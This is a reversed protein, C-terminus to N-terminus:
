LLLGALATHHPHLLRARGAKSAYKKRDCFRVEAVVNV